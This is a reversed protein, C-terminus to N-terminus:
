ELGQLLSCPCYKGRVVKAAHATRRVTLPIGPHTALVTLLDNVESDGRSELAEILRYLGVFFPRDIDEFATTIPQGRLAEVRKRQEGSLVRTRPRGFIHQITALYPFRMLARSAEGRKDFSPHDLASVIEDIEASALNSLPKLHGFVLESVDHVLQSDGEAIARIAHRARYAPGQLLRWLEKAERAAEPLRSTRAARWDVVVFGDMIFQSLVWRERSDVEHAFWELGEHYPQNTLTEFVEFRAEQFLEGAYLRRSPFYQPARYDLQMTRSERIEGTSEDLYTAGHDHPLIVERDGFPVVCGAYTRERVPIPDFVRLTDLEISRVHSKSFLYLRRSGLGAWHYRQGDLDVSRVEKQPVMTGDLSYTHIELTPSTDTDVLVLATDSLAVMVTSPVWLSLVPTADRVHLLEFWRGLVGDRHRPYAERLILYEGGPSFHMDPNLFSTGKLTVASRSGSQLSIRHLLHREGWASNVLAYADDTSPRIRVTAIRGPLHIKRLLSGGYTEVVSDVIGEFRDPRSGQALLLGGPLEQLVGCLFAVLSGGTMCRSVVGM